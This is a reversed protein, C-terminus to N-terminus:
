FVLLEITRLSQVNYTLAGPLGGDHKVAVTRRLIRPSIQNGDQRSLTFEPEDVQFPMAPGGAWEVPFIRQLVLDFQDVTQDNLVIQALECQDPM